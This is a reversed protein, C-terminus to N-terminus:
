LARFTANGGGRAGAAGTTRSTASAAASVATGSRTSAVIQQGESLGSVIQTNTDDSIGVEVPVQVPATASLIGQPTSSATLPPDFVLVYSGTANTKVASSPVMLADQVVGTQIDANVTMGPKIRADQADLAVKVTYSVVGQSVTGVPDIEVVKGTLTLSDIADFTMTAKDGLKVKAADVENLSMQALLQASVVSAVAGNATDGVKAAVSAVQGAFPARVTYKGLDIGQQAVDAAEKELNNKEIQLNIPNAGDQNGVQDLTINQQAKTIAQKTTTITKQQALLSSLDSNAVSLHARTNSQVTAFASPLTANYTQAINSIAGYLNLEDQLAQAVQTTMTITIQLQKELTGPDSGRTLQQYASLAATYANNAATYDATAQTKFAVATTTDQNSNFLNLLYDMNWQTKHSDFDYGFLADQAGSVATPLDLYTQSLLNFTDNYDTALNQQATVLADQDQQYTIPAQVSDKQYQLQAAALSKKADEYSRNADTSDIAVLAQGPRVIDGAKVGVWTIQGSVQAKVDLQNNASIQGSASVSSVITGRTVTGLVYRTQTPPTSAKSYAYWGGGLVVVLVLASIFKHALAYKKVVTYYHWFHKM